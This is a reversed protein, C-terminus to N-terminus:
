RSYALDTDQPLANDPCLVLIHSARIDEKERNYAEMLLSDNVKRDTLYQLAVQRRYGALENRFSASTDMKLDEAEKVKMKFTTFLELYNDVAQPNNTTDKNNKKYVYVFESLHVQSTGITMLVPDNPDNAPTGASVQAMASGAIFLMGMLTMFFAKKM